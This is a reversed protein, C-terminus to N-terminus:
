GSVFDLDFFEADTELAKMSCCYQKFGERDANVPVLRMLFRMAQRLVSATRTQGMVSVGVARILGM